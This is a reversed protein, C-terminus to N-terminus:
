LEEESRRASTEPSLPDGPVFPAGSPGFLGMERAVDGILAVTVEDRAAWPMQSKWRQLVARQTRVAVVPGLDVVHSTPLGFVQLPDVAGFYRAHILPDADLLSLRRAQLDEFSRGAEDGFREQRPVLREALLRDDLGADHLDDLLNAVQAEARDPWWQLLARQTLQVPHGRWEFRTSIPYGLAPVGGFRDFTSWFTFDGADSVAFGRPSLGVPAGNTETFFWGGRVPWNLAPAAGAHVGAVLQGEAPPDSRAPALPAAPATAAPPNGLQAPAAALLGPRILTPVAAPAAQAVPQPSLRPIERALPPFQDQTVVSVMGAEPQSVYITEADGRLVMRSRLGLFDRQQFQVGFRGSRDPLTVRGLVSGDTPDIRTVLNQMSGLVYVSGSAEGAVIAAPPDALPFRSVSLAGPEVVLLERTATNIAYALGRAAAVGSLGPGTLGVRNVVQGTRGDLISLQGTLHTAFLMHSTTDLAIGTVQPLGSTARLMRRGRVDVLAIEQREPLVVYLLGLESDLQVDGPDAPLPISGARQGTAGNLIVVSADARASVYVTGNAQDIALDVPLRGLSIPRSFTPRAPDLTWLVGSADALFVRGTAVSADLGAPLGGVVATAAPAPTPTPSPTPTATPSPAPAFPRGLNVVPPAPPAVPQSVPTELAAFAPVSVPVNGVVYDFTNTLTDNAYLELRYRGTREGGEHYWVYKDWFRVVKADAPASPQAAGSGDAAPGRTGVASPTPSTGEQKVSAVLRGSDLDFVRLAFPVRLRQDLAEVYLGMQDLAYFDSMPAAQTNRGPVTTLYVKGFYRSGLDGDPTASSMGVPVATASAIPTPTAPSLASRSREILDQIRPDSEPNMLRAREFSSLAERYKGQQYAELGERFAQDAAQVLGSFPDPTPEPSRPALCGSSVVTLLAAVALRALARRASKRTPGGTLPTHTSLDEVSKLPQRLPTRDSPRVARQPRLIPRAIACIM